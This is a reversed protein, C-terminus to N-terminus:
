AGNGLFMRKLFATFTHMEEQYAKLKEARIELPAIDQCDAGQSELRSKGVTGLPRIILRCDYSVYRDEYFQALYTLLKQREQIHLVKIAKRARDVEDFLAEIEAATKSGQKCEQTAEESLKAISINTRPDNSAIDVWPAGTGWDVHGECSATTPISLANLAVITELIGPDVPKGLKDTIRSVKDTIEQWCQKRQTEIEIEISM